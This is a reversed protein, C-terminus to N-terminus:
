IWEYTVVEHQVLTGIIAMAMGLAAMKQGRRATEPSNLGKLGLIFLLASILYVINTIVHSM